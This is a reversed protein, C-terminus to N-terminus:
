QSYICSLKPCVLENQALLKPFDSPLYLDSDPAFIVGKTVTALSVAAFTAAVFESASNGISFLAQHKWPGRTVSTGYHGTLQDEEFFFEPAARVDGVIMPFSGGDESAEFPRDFRLPFGLKVAEGEWVEASPMPDNFLVFLDVSM